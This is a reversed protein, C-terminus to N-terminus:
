ANKPLTIHVTTGKNLTSTLWVKGGHAEIIDRAIATGLGTGTTHATNTGRYYREFIHTLEDEAIGKGNDTITLYAENDKISTWSRSSPPSSDRLSGYTIISKSELDLAVNRYPM